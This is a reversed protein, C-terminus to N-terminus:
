WSKARRQSLGIEIAISQAAAPELPFIPLFSVKQIEPWKTGLHPGGQNKSIRSYAPIDPFLRVNPKSAFDNQLVEQVGPLANLWALLQPKGLDNPANLSNKVSIV